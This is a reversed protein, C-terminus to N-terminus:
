LKSNGTLALSKDVIKFNISSSNQVYVFYFLTIFNWIITVWGEGDKVTVLQGKDEGGSVEGTNSDCKINSLLLNM